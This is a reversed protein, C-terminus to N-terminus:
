AVLGHCSRDVIVDRLEARMEFRARVVRPVDHRDVAAAVLQEDSRPIQRGPSHLCTRSMQSVINSMPGATGAELIPGRCDSADPDPARPNQYRIKSARWM